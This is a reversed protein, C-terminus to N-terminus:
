PVRATDPSAKKGSPKWTRVLREAKSIQAPTMERAVKIRNDRAEALGQAAALSFWKYAQVDDKKVGLGNAYMGGLNNQAEALGQAAAKRFWTAASAYDLRVGEGKRYMVGLEHQAVANGQEALPKLAKFTAKAPPRKGAGKEADSGAAVHSIAGMALLLPVVLRIINRGIM